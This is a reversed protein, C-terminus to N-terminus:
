KLKQRSEQVIVPDPDVAQRSSPECSSRPYGVFYRSSDDDDVDGWFFWILENDFPDDGCLVYTGCIRDLAKDVTRIINKKKLESPYEFM